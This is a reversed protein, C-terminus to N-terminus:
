NSRGNKIKARIRKKSGKKINEKSGNNDDERKEYDAKIIFGVDAGVLEAQCINKYECWGCNQSNLNRAKKHPNHKIDLATELVDEIVSNVVEQSVRVEYRRYYDDWSLSNIFEQYNAPDEGLEKLSKIVVTPISDLKRTSIKGSALRQPSTPQKAKIYNWIVGKVKKYGLQQLAWIYISSQMNFVRMDEDPFRKHTKTEGIWLNGKSDKAIFDIYGLMWIDEEEDLCVLFEKESEVYELDEDEYYDVYGEMLDYVMKPIDGYYAKEEQLYKEDWEKAFDQYAKKWSRGTNYYEICEHIASGRILADGKRKKTLKDVYRYHHARDCTRKKKIRSNSLILAGRDKLEQRVQEIDTTVVM